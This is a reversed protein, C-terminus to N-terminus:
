GTIRSVLGFKRDAWIAVLAIVLVILFPKLKKM